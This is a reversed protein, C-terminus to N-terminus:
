FMFRVSLQASRTGNMRQSVGFLSSQYTTSPMAWFMWKFVNFVEAILQINLDRGGGMPVAFYKQFALNMNYDPFWRFANRPTFNQNYYSLDNAAAPPLPIGFLSKDWGPKGQNWTILDQYNGGLWLPRDNSDYDKNWDMSGTTARVGFPAASTYSFNGSVQWGAFVNKILWNGSKKGWPIDWVFGGVLRNRRDFQAFGYEMDIREQSVAEMATADGFYDSNQDYANGYTYATYLSWGQSFRKNIVVQLANYNSKLNQIRLNLDTIAAYANIGNAVGNLRDGTFRNPRQISGLNKGHSGTYNVEISTNAGLERQIGFLWNYASQPILDPMMWRCAIRYNSIFQSPITMPITPNLDMNPRYISVFTFMPYNFRDNEYTNNFTRDYSIGFGGRVSTKGDGTLDYAFSVKPAFAKYYPNWLSEGHLERGDWIAYKIGEISYVGETIDYNGAVTNLYGQETGFAPMNIGIGSKEQPVGYYEWRLGFTVTLRDTARWDDQAFIGGELGAWKRSSNGRAWTGRADGKLYPNDAPPDPPDGGFVLYYAGYNYIWDISTYFYYVGDVNADFTSASNWMRVEGGVKISHNGKQFNLVDVLQYTNNAFEQPMNPWDGVVHVGDNFVTYGGFCPIEPAVRPWDAYDRHYGVRLENYMTPSFLHLWTLGGTHYSYPTEKTFGPVNAFDWYDRSTNYLWRFAVRDKESVIWDMKLGVNNGRTHSTGDWVYKGADILGDTEGFGNPLDIFDYTPVPYAAGYQSFYQAASGTARSIAEPTFFYYPTRAETDEWVGEYSAFFFLKDRIIPGGLTGGYQWRKLPPYDHTLWDATQFLSSGGRHFAWATGHFENTGSKMIANIIGGSNRGYEASFNNAILRFEQIAEPPLSTTATAYATGNDNNDIGDLMVNNASARMGNVAYGRVAGPLTGPAFAMLSLYNRNGQPYSLIERETIVTSVQSRTTEVLPSVSVVTVQEEIKGIELGFNVKLESGGQVVLGEKVMTKFGALAASLNYTGTPIRDLRYRGQDNSITSQTLGTDINKATVTVGPLVTGELDKVTGVFTGLDRVQAISLSAVFLLAVCLLTLKKFSM